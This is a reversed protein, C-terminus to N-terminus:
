TYVIYFINWFIAYTLLHIQKSHIYSNDIFLYLEEPAIYNCGQVQASLTYNMIKAIKKIKDVIYQHVKIKACSIRQHHSWNMMQPYFVQLISRSLETPFDYNLVASVWIIEWFIPWDKQFPKHEEQTTCMLSSFSNNGFNQWKLLYKGGLKAVAMKLM